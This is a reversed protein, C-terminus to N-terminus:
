QGGRPKLTPLETALIRDRLRPDLRHQDSGSARGGVLDIPWDSRGIVATRKATKTRALAEPHDPPVLLNAHHVQPGAIQRLPRDSFHSPIATSIELSKPASRTAGAIGRAAGSFPREFREPDRHYVSKCKESCFRRRRQRDKKNLPRDCVPCNFQGYRTQCQADCFADRRDAVPGPLKRRCAPNRCYNRLQLPGVDFM